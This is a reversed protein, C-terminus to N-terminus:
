RIPENKDIHVVVVINTYLAGGAPDVSHVLQLDYDEYVWEEYLDFEDELYYGQNFEYRRGDGEDTTPEGHAKKLDELLDIFLKKDETNPATKSTSFTIREVADNYVEFNMDFVRGYMMVKQKLRNSGETNLIEGELDEEEIGFTKMMKAPTTMILPAFDEPSIETTLDVRSRCATLSLAMLLSLLIAIFRKM